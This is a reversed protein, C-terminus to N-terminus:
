DASCEMAEVATVLSILSANTEETLENRHTLAALSEIWTAESTRRQKARGNLREVLPLILCFLLLGCASGASVGLGWLFATWLM